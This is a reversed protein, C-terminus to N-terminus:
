ITPQPHLNINFNEIECAMNHAREADSIRARLNQIEEAAQLLDGIIQTSYLKRTIGCDAWPKLKVVIDTEM